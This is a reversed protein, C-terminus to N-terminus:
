ADGMDSTSRRRRDAVWAELDAVDYAVRRGLKLYAPGSGYLRLKALTSTSLNLHEAAEAANLKRTTGTM